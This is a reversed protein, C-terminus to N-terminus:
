AFCDGMGAWPDRRERGIAPEPRETSGGIGGRSSYVAPKNGNRERLARRRQERDAPTALKHYRNQVITAAAKRGPKFHEGIVEWPEGALVMRLLEADAEPRWSM